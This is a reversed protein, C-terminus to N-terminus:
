LIRLINEILDSIQQKNKHPYVEDTLSTGELVLKSTKLIDQIM